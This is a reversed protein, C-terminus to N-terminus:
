MSAQVIGLTQSGGLMKKLKSINGSINTTTSRSIKDRFHGAASAGQVYIDVVKITGANSALRWGAEFKPGDSKSIVTGVVVENNPYTRSRGTDFAQIAM